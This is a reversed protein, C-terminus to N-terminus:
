LLCLVMWSGHAAIIMMMTGPCSSRKKEASKENQFRNKRIIKNNQLEFANGFANFFENFYIQPKLM